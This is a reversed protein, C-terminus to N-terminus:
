LFFCLGAPPLYEEDNMLPLPEESSSDSSQSADDNGFKQKKKVPSSTASASLNIVMLVTLEILAISYCYIKHLIVNKKGIAGKNALNINQIIAARCTSCL